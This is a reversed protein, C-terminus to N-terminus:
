GSRIEVVLIRGVIAGATAAVVFNAFRLECSFVRFQVPLAFPAYHHHLFLLIPMLGLLLLFLLPGFTFTFPLWQAKVAGGVHRRFCRRSPSARV